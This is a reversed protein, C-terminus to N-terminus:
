SRQPEEGMKGPIDGPTDASLIRGLLLCSPQLWRVANGLHAYLFWSGSFSLPYLPPKLLEDDDVSREMKVTRGVARFLFPSFFREPCRLESSSPATDRCLIHQCLGLMPEATVENVLSCPFM